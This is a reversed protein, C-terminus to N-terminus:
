NQTCREILKDRNRCFGYLYQPTSSSSKTDHSKLEQRFTYESPSELEKPSVYVYIVKKDESVKALRKYYEAITGNHFKGEFKPDVQKRIDIGKSEHKRYESISVQLLLLYRGDDSDSQSDSLAVCVGDIAPHQQRLHRIENDRLDDKIPKTEQVSASILSSFSFTKVSLSNGEMAYITLSHLDKCQLFRNEFMYGQVFPLELVETDRKEFRSKLETVIVDYMPPFILKIRAGDDEDELVTLYELHLYSQEYRGIQTSSLRINHRYYELFMLCDNFTSSYVPDNLTSIFRRTLQTIRTRFRRVGVEFKSSHSVTRHFCSLLYPNNAVELQKEELAKIDVQFKEIFKKVETGNFPESRLHEFAHDLTSLHNQLTSLTSTSRDNIWSGGSSYALVIYWGKTMAMMAVKVLPLVDKQDHTVCCLDVFFVPKREQLVPITLIEQLIMAPSLKFASSM